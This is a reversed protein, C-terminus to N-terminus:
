KLMAFVKDAAELTKAIIDKDHAKSVFGAEYSAPALYVGQELMGHYFKNFQETNCNIAQQYNTVREIDTFFIGFMSGAVNTSLKIGHKNALAQMGDALAQTNEFIGEYLGEEQIQEMAALGAAMAVPNGSLTGAQYVPGTPAIHTLIDRRGGFCGVPMGGGIVKGLCTLDPKIGYREQAGGRSVRFGTMV